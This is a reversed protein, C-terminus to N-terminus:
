ELEYRKIKNILGQRTIGLAQATHTKNGQHNQMATAILKMELESVQQELTKHFQNKDQKNETTITIVREGRILEIEQLGLTDQLCIAAASELTNKLERVNGPWPTNIFWQRTNQDLSITTKNSQNYKHLFHDVLVAIDEKRSALSTTTITLGKLRYYLDERFSGTQVEKPLDRNTACVLRFNITELQRGGVPYYSGEQLVRLLKVQMALPM